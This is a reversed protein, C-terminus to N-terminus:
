GDLAAAFDFAREHFHAFRDAANAEADEDASLPGFCLEVTPQADAVLDRAIDQAETLAQLAAQFRPEDAFVARCAATLRAVNRADAEFAIEYNVADLDDGFAFVVEVPDAPTPVARPALRADAALARQTSMGGLTTMLVLATALAGRGALVGLTEKGLKM